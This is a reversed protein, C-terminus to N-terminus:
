TLSGSAVPGFAAPAPSQAASKAANKAPAKKAAAKKTASAPAPLPAPPTSPQKDFASQLQQEDLWRRYWEAHLELLRGDIWEGAAIAGQSLKLMEALKEAHQEPTHGAKTIIEVFAERTMQAREQMPASGSAAPIAIPIILAGYNTWQRCIYDAAANFKATQHEEWIEGKYLYLRKPGEPFEVVTAHFDGIRPQTARKSQDSLLLALRM